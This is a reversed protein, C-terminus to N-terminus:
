PESAAVESDSVAAEPEPPRRLVGVNTVERANVNFEVTGLSTRLVHKGPKLGPVFIRGDLLTYHSAGVWEHNVTIAERSGWLHDDGFDMMGAVAGTEELHIDVSVREGKGGRVVASGARGDPLWAFIRGAGVRPTVVFEPGDFRVHAHEDASNGCGRGRPGPTQAGIWAGKVPSGDPLFVRGSVEFDGPDSSFWPWVKGGEKMESFPFAIVAPAGPALTVDKRASVARGNRRGWVSVSHRGSETIGTFTGDEQPRLQVNVHVSEVSEAGRRRGMVPKVTVPVFAGLQFDFRRVEGATLEAGVSRSLGEGEPSFPTMSVSYGPTVGDLTYRGQADTTAWVPTMELLMADGHAVLRVGAAPRGDHQLVQGEVAAGPPLKLEVFLSGGAVVGVDRECLEAHGAGRACVTMVGAGPAMFTAEGSADTLATEDPLQHGLGTTFLGRLLSVRAGALPTGNDKSVARVRISDAAGDMTPPPLPLPPLSPLRAFEPFPVEVLVPQAAREARWMGLGGLVAAMASLGIGWRFGHMM